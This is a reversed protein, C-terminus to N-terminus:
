RAPRSPLRSCLSADVPMFATLRLDGAHDELEMSKRQGENLAYKNCRNGTNVTAWLLHLYADQIALYDHVPLDCLDDPFIIVDVAYSRM